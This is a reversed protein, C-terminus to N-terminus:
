NKIEWNGDATYNGMRKKKEAEKSNMKTYNLGMTRLTECGSSPCVPDSGQQM